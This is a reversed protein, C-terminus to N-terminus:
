HKLAKASPLAHDEEFYAELAEEWPRLQIGFRNKVKETSLASNQPRRAPRTHAKESEVPVILDLPYNRKKLILRAYEYRSVIGENAVHYIQNGQGARQQIVGEIIKDVAEALDGTYTPNGSQDSVVQLTRGEEAQRLVKRPFNDGQKGFTWSTRLILFRRSRLLVYREALLKTEGYVSIPRPIDEEQYPGAKTGDFVFDTSFFVLLSGGQNAAETVNRTVELNGQLAERRHTECRDVDTMAAAHLIIEPKEALILERATKVQSLDGVRFPIELHPAAQWGIGALSHKSALRRALDTGLMGGAGTILIKM